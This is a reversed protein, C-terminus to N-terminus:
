SSSGGGLTWLVKFRPPNFGMLLTGLLYRVACWLAELHLCAQLNNLNWGCQLTRLVELRPAAFDMLLIGLLFRGYVGCRKLSGGCESRFEQLNETSWGYQLMSCSSTARSQPTGRTPTLEVDFM